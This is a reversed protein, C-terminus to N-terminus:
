GAENRRPRPRRREPARTSPTEESSPQSAGELPVGVDPSTSSGAEAVMLWTTAPLPVGWACRGRLPFSLPLSQTASRRGSCKRLSSQPITATRTRRICFAELDPLFEEGDHLTAFFTRLGDVNVNTPTLKHQNFDWPDTIGLHAAFEPIEATVPTGSLLAHCSSGPTGALRRPLM